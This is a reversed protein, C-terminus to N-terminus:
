VIGPTDPLPVDFSDGANLVKAQGGYVSRVVVQGAAVFRGPPLVFVETAFELGPLAVDSFAAETGIM